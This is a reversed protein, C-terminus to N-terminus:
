GGTVLGALREIAVWEPVLVHQVGCGILCLMGIACGGLAGVDDSVRWRRLTRALAALVVLVLVGIAITGIGDVVSVRVAASYAASGMKGIATLTDRLLDLQRDNM